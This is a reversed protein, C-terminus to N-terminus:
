AATGIRTSQPRRTSRITDNKANELVEDTIVGLQHARKLVYEFPLNFYNSVDLRFSDPFRSLRAGFFSQIETEPMLAALAVREAEALLENRSPYLKDLGIAATLIHLFLQKYASGVEYPLIIWAGERFSSAFGTMGPVGRLEGAIIEKPFQMRQDHKALRYVVAEVPSKQFLLDAPMQRTSEWHDTLKVFVAENVPLNQANGLSVLMRRYTALFDIQLQNPDFKTRKM